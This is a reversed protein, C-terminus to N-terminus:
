STPRDAPRGDILRRNITPRIVVSYSIAWLEADFSDKNEGLYRRKKQWKDSKKEFWVASGEKGTDLRSGDTWFVIGDRDKQAEQLAEQRAQLAVQLPLETNLRWSREIPEVGYASDVAQTVSVQRALWQSLSTPRENGAWILTVEPQDEAQTTNADGNRFSVPLIKKALHDDPLNLLRYTYIKQRPGKEAESIEDSACGSSFQLRM